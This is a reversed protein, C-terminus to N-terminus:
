PAALSPSRCCGARGVSSVAPLSGWTTPQRSLSQSLTCCSACKRVQCMERAGPLFPEKQRPPITLSPPNSDVDGRQDCCKFVRGQMVPPGGEGWLLQQLM